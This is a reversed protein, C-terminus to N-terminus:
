EEETCFCWKMKVRMSYSELSLYLQPPITFIGAEAFPTMIIFLFFQSICVICECLEAKRKDVDICSQWARANVRSLSAFQCCRSLRSQHMEHWSATTGPVLLCLVASFTTLFWYNESYHKTVNECLNLHHIFPETWLSVFLGFFTVARKMNVVHVIRIYFMNGLINNHEKLTEEDDHLICKGLM